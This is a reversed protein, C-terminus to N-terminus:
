LATYHFGSMWLFRSQSVLGQAGQQSSTNHGGQGPLPGQAPVQTYDLPTNGVPAKGLASHLRCTGWHTTHASSWCWSEPFPQAIVPNVWYEYLAGEQWLTSSSLLGAEAWGMTPVLTQTVMAQIGTRRMSRVWQVPLPLGWPCLARWIIREMDLM